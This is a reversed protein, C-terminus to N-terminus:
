AGCSKDRIWADSLHQGSSGAGPGTARRAMGAPEHSKAASELGVNNHLEEAEEVPM